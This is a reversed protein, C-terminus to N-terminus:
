KGQSEEKYMIGFFLSFFLLFTIGIQFDMLNTGWFALFVIVLMVNFPLSKYAKSFFIFGIYLGFILIFGTLGVTILITLFQNHPRLRYKEVPSDIATRGYEMAVFIDGTGWGSVPYVKYAVWAARWLEVRQMFSLTLPNGSRKYENIGWFTEHIRILANPWNVHLYNAVGDEIAEIEEASLSKVSERDKRLGKSTLYRYLTEKINNTRMDTSDFNVESVENWAKRTEEEAIFYYVLHGNERMNNEFDYQYYNGSETKEILPGPDIVRWVPSVVFVYLLTLGILAMAAMIGVMIKRIFVKGWIVERIGLFVLVGALSLLGTLTGLIILFLMLWFSLALSVWYYVLRSTIRKALWPMLFIVMVVMLSLYVHMIFPSIERPDVYDDKLFIFLGIFSTVLLTLCFLTLISYLRDKSLSFNSAVLFTLTLFPLKDLLEYFFGQHLDQTWFIGVIYIIYISSLWLAPKNQLFRHTKEYYRGELVWNIGLLIQAVSVMFVSTPMSIVLLCLCYFYILTHISEDQRKVFVNRNM